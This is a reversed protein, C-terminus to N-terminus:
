SAKLAVTSSSRLEDPVWSTDFLSVLPLVPSDKYRYTVTVVACTADGPSSPCTTLLISILRGPASSTCTSAPVTLTRALSESVAQCVGSQVPPQPMLMAARAGDEAARSIAQQTYFIAGFTVVGYLAIFLLMFVLAFEIAAIGRQRKGAIAIRRPRAGVASM